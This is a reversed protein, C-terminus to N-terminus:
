APASQSKSISKMLGDVIRGVEQAKEDLGAFAGQDLFGLNTAVELQTRVECLSGRANSLFHVFEKKSVRGKGEAINSVISVAGRRVQATLGYIERSPFNDTVRYIETVLSMAKQWAVLERFSDAM